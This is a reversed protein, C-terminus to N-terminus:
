KEQVGEHDPSPFCQRKGETEKWLSYLSSNQLM